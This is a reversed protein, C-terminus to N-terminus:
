LCPMARLSASWHSPLAVRGGGGAVRAAQHAPVLWLNALGEERGSVAWFNARVQVGTLYRAQSHPLIDRWVSPTATPAVALKFNKAGGANTLIVFADGGCAGTGGGEGEGGGGGGGGGEPARMHEVLYLVGDERPRLLLRHPLLSGEAGDAGCPLPLFRDVGAAHAGMVARASLPVACVESTRKSTSRVFIYDRTAAVSLWVWHREDDEQLLCVDQAQPTGLAHRWLRYPRHAGDMTLYYLHAGAEDFEVAGYVGSLEEVAPAGPPSLRRLHVSYEEAGSFDVSYAVLDHNRTYAIHNVDLVEHGEALANEDLVVEEAGGACPRRCHLPYSKGEVHREYIMFDGDRWPVEADEERLRGRLEGFIEETAAALPALCADTYANEARLHELVAPADRTDSRLWFLDDEVFVPPDMLRSPEGRDGGAGLGLAVSHPQRAAVPAAAM